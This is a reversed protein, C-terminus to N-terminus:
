GGRLLDRIEELYVVGQKIKSYFQIIYIYVILSAIIVLFTTLIDAM